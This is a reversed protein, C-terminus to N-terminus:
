IHFPHYFACTIHIIEGLFITQHIVHIYLSCAANQVIVITTPYQIIRQISSSKTGLFKSRLIRM